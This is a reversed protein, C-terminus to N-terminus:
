RELYYIKTEIKRDEDINMVAYSPKRGEQRPYSLSGPNVAILGDDVDIVPRHTHGYFVIDFGEARAEQKLFENGMAIYYNHGHTVLARYGELELEAESKLNSFFDNNGTVAVFPCDNIRRVANEFEREEGEIDGCHIVLDVPATRELAEYFNNGYRHTDSVILIRM